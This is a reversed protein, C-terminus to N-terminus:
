IVFIFICSLTLKTITIIGRVTLVLLALQARLLLTRLLAHLELRLYVADSGVELELPRPVRLTLGVLAVNIHISLTKGGQHGRIPFLRTM